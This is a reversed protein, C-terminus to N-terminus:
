QSKFSWITHYCCVKTVTWTHIMELGNVHYLMSQQQEIVCRYFHCSLWHFCFFKIQIRHHFSYFFIHPSPLLFPLHSFLFLLKRNLCTEWNTASAQVSQEVLRATTNSSSFWANSSADCSSDAEAMHCRRGLNWRPPRIYLVKASLTPLYPTRIGTRPLNETLIM